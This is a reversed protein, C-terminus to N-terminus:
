TLVQWLTFDRDFCFTKKHFRLIYSTGQLM